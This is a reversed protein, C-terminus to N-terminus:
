LSGSYVKQLKDNVSKLSYDKEAKSRAQKSLSNRLSKNKMLLLLKDKFSKEDSLEATFGASGVIEPIAFTNSAVVPLGYSLAETVVIGFPENLTPFFFIDSSGMLEKVKREKVFGLHKIKRNSNIIKLTKKSKPTSGTIILEANVGKSIEDFLKVALDGGKREFVSAVFLVKIKKNPKKNLKPLDIGCPVINIKKALQDKDGESLQNLFHTKATNSRLLISKCSEQKLARLLVNWESPCSRERDIIDASYVWHIDSFIVNGDCHILDYNNDSNVKMVEPYDKSRFYPLLKLGSYKFFSGLWNISPKTMALYEKRMNYLCTFDLKSFYNGEGFKNKCFAPLYYDVKEPGTSFLSSIYRYNGSSMTNIDWPFLMVKLKVSNYLDSLKKEIVEASFNKILYKKGEGGLRRRLAKNSILKKLKTKLQALNDKKILFGTKGDVVQEPIGCVSTAIVPLSHNMAEFISLPTGEGRSPLCFIDASKYLESLKKDSVSEFITVNRIKEAVVEMKIDPKGVLILKADDQIDKFADLILDAGKRRLQHGVMLVVPKKNAKKKFQKEIKIPQPIVATKSKDFGTDKIFSDRAFESFFVVKKCNPHNLVKLYKRSFHKIWFKSLKHKDSLGWIRVSDFPTNDFFHINPKNTMAIKDYVQVIDVDKPVRINAFYSSLMQFPKVYHNGTVYPVRIRSIDLSSQEVEVKRLSKIKPFNKPVFYSFSDSKIDALKLFYGTSGGFHKDTYGTLLINM